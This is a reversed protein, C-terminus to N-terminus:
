PRWGDGAGRLVLDSVKYHGKPGALAFPAIEAFILRTAPGETWGSSALAQSDESACVVVDAKSALTAFIAAGDPHRLDLTVSRKNRNLGHWTLSRDLGPLGDIFPELRRGASGGPPELCIVDAGLDGLIQGALMTEPASLELVRVDALM